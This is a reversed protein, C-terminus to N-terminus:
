LMLSAVRNIMVLRGGVLREVIFALSGSALALQYEDKSTFESNCQLHSMALIFCVSAAASQTDPPGLHHIYLIYPIEKRYRAAAAAAGEACDM